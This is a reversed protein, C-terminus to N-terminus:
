GKRREHDDVLIKKIRDTAGNHEKRLREAIEHRKDALYDDGSCIRAYIKKVDEWTEARYMGELLAEFSPSIPIHADCYIIPKESLFFPFIISSIDSILVGIEDFTDEILENSDFSAGRRAVEKRYLEVDEESMKGIRVYNQFALPHPRIILKASDGTLELIEDKLEFFHSGGREEDYSWRPAWLVDTKSEQSDTHLGELSPYGCFLIRQEAQFIRKEKILADRNEKSEMFAFYVNRFFGNNYGCLSSKLPWFAYPIYCCRSVKSVNFSNYEEPLYMDYPRQYFVYDAHFDAIDRWKGDELAKVAHEPYEKFFYDSDYYSLVKSNVFDFAPVVLMTVSFRDDGILNNFLPREKDWVEAMQVIFTVRIKGEGGFNTRHSRYRKKALYDHKIRSLLRRPIDFPSKSM